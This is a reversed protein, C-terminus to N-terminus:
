AVRRITFGSETYNDGVLKPGSTATAGTATSDGSFLWQVQQGAAGPIEFTISATGGSTVRALQTGGGVLHTQLAADTAGAPLDVRARVAVLYTGDVPLIVGSGDGPDFGDWQQAADRVAGSQGAGGPLQVTGFRGSISELPSVRVWATGTWRVTVGTDSQYWRHGARIPGVPPQAAPSTTSGLVFVRDDTVSTPIQAAVMTHHSVPLDFNVADDVLAPLLPTGSTPTGLSYALAAAGTGKTLRVVVRDLRTTGPFNNAPIAVTADADNLYRVGRLLATMAAVIVASTAGGAPRALGGTLVGSPIADGLLAEHELITVQGSNRGPQPWSDQAM